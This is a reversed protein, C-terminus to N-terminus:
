LDLVLVASKSRSCCPLIQDGKAKECSSLFFDRHDPIGELVGTLCTGCVGAECSKPLIIGHDELAALISQGASIAIVQGSRALKVAFRGSNDIASTDPKFYERHFQQPSIGAHAAADAIWGIFGAPGCVYLHAGQNRALVSDIDLKQASPGDDFHMVVSDAYSGCRLEERFGAEAASRACYHLEFNAHSNHLHQAMALLPTIGIGGALLLTKHDGAVLAFHNRPTSIRLRDGTNLAHMLVSGGRSQPDKQVGIRYSNAPNYPDCLSYQRLLGPKIEVDIHAGAEFMPLSLGDDAALVFTTIDPTVDHRAIIRVTRTETM